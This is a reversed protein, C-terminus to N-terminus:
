NNSQTYNMCASLIASRLDLRKKLVDTLKPDTADLSIIQETYDIYKLIDPALKDVASSKLGKQLEIKASEYQKARDNPDLISKAADVRSVFKLVTKCVDNPLTAPIQGTQGTAGSVLGVCM